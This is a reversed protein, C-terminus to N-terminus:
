LALTGFLRCEDFKPRTDACHVSELGCVYFSIANRKLIGSYLTFTTLKSTQYFDGFNIAM